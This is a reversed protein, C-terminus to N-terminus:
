VSTAVGVESQFFSRNGVNLFENRVIVSIYINSSKLYMDLLSCKSRKLEISLGATRSRNLLSKHKLSLHLMLPEITLLFLDVVLLLSNVFLLLSKM